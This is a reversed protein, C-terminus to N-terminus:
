VSDVRKLRHALAKGALEADLASAYRKGVWVVCNEDPKTVVLEGRASNEFGILTVRWNRLLVGVSILLVSNYVIPGSLDSLVGLVLGVPSLSTGEANVAVATIQFEALISSLGTLVSGIALLWFGISILNADVWKRILRM